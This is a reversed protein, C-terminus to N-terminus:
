MRKRKGNTTEIGRNDGQSEKGIQKYHERKKKAAKLEAREDQKEHRIEGRM